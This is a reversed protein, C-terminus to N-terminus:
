EGHSDQLPQDVGNILWALERRHDESLSLHGTNALPVWIGLPQAHRMVLLPEKRAAYEGHLFSRVGLTKIM